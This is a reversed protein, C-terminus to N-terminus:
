RPAAARFSELMAYLASKPQLDSDLPLPRVPEHDSRPMFTALWTYRDSLGWTIITTVAPERLVADLFRQYANAVMSDRVGIDGPLHKDIVDLETIFVQLGLDAVARVFEQLKDARFRNESGVLHAQIGLAHVPVEETRLRGLLELVAARRAQSDGTEYELGTENYVLIADPDAEAATRFALDIYSPGLSRLWVTDRLRDARGDSPNIAENVVDWSHVRGAYHGVTQSIHDTLQKQADAGNGAWSPIQQHWVLCHGRFKAQNGAAFDALADGAEFNFIGPEPEVTEWKLENEPVLVACQQAFLAAFNSDSQLIQQQTAAGFLVNQRAAAAKLPELETITSKRLLPQLGPFQSGCGIMSTAATLAGLEALQGLFGRRTMRERSSSTEYPAAKPDGPM